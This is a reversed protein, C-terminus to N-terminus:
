LPHTETAFSPHTTKEHHTSFNAFLNAHTCNYAAVPISNSHANMKTSVYNGLETIAIIPQKM